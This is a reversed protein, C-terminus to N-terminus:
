FRERRCNNSESAEAESGLVDACIEFFSIQPTASNPLTVAFAWLEGELGGPSLGGTNRFAELDWSHNSRLDVRLRTRTVGAPLLGINKVVAFFNYSTSTAHVASSTWIFSPVLDPKMPFSIPAPVNRQFIPVARATPALFTLSALVIIGAGVLRNVRKGM